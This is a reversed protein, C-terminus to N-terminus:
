PRRWERVHQLVTSGRVIKAAHFLLGLVTSPLQARGVLRPETLSAEPTSAIQKLARDLAARWSPSATM